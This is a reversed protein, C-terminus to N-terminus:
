FGNVGDRYNNTDIPPMQSSSSTAKSVPIPPMTGNNVNVGADVLADKAAQNEAGKPANIVTDTYQRMQGNVWNDGLGREAAVQELQNQAHAFNETLDEKSEPGHRGSQLM